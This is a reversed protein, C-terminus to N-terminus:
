TLLMDRRSRQEFQEIARLNEARREADLDQTQRIPDPTQTDLRASVPASCHEASRPATREIKTTTALGDHQESSTYLTRGGAGIARSERRVFAASKQRALRGAQADDEAWGLALRLYGATENVLRAPGIVEGAKRGNCNDLLVLTATCQPDRPDFHCRVKAGDYLHLDPRTFDFPVSFDEFMPVKGGVLVGRVTREFSFPAFMWDMGASLQRLPAATTQQTWIEEPVWTGYNRSTLLTRNHEALVEQFVQVVVALTPFYRRPDQHGSKSAEYLKCNDANEGRFRGMDAHPFQVALRTWAKNFLIEVTKQHPSHTRWHQCGLAQIAHRVAHSNFTGGEFQFGQRPIGHSRVVTKMGHLIDEARYSGRPRVVYDFGLAFDYGCDIFALWQFRGLLVGYKTSCPTLVEPRDATGCPVCVAIGPTADDGGFWDGAQMRQRGQDSNFRRVSAPAANNNLDWDRANRTYAVVSANITIQRAIREPVLPQGARERALIEDRLAPPCIPLESLNLTSPQANLTALLQQGLGTTWGFPLAPLSLTRRIAEPVSGRGSATNCKLNFFRAAPIFWRLAEIRGSLDGLKATTERPEPLLAAVGAALFRQLRSHNGSFTGPSRGLLRAASRLSHGEGTLRLFERFLGAELEAARWDAETARSERHATDANSIALTSPAAERSELRAARSNLLSSGMMDQPAPASAPEDPRIAPAPKMIAESLTEPLRLTAPASSAADLRAHHGTPESKTEPADEFDFYNSCTRSM